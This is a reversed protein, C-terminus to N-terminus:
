REHGIRDLLETLRAVYPPFTNGDAAELDAITLGEPLQAKARDLLDAAKQLKGLGASTAAHRYMLETMPPAKGYAEEALAYDEAYFAATALAANYWPPPSPNLEFARIAWAIADAGVPARRAGGWAAQALIDPNNRGLAVAKRLAAEAAAHDGARGHLFTAQILTEPDNPSLQVARETAAIRRTLHDEFAEITQAGEMQLLHVVALATWARGYDPDLELAQKLYLQSRALADRTFLHKQEIARLYLDFANLNSPSARAKEMRDLAVVGTWASTITAEVKELLSSQIDFVDDSTGSWVESWLIHGEDGDTLKATLRLASPAASITGSLVYGGYSAGKSLENVRRVELWDNRALAASLESALGAGIRSWKETQYVDQFPQVVIEPRNRDVPARPWIFAIVVISCIALGALLIPWRRRHPVSIASMEPDLELMYGRKPFTRVLRHGDQGLAARIERICQTVSDETVTTAPWVEKMLDDRSVVQGRKAFLVRLVAASQPRLDVIPRRDPSLTGDTTDFRYAGIKVKARDM